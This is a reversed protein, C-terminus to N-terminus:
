VVSKRDVNFIVILPLSVLYFNKKHISQQGEICRQNNCVTTVVKDSNESKTVQLKKPSKNKRSSRGGNNDGDSCSM